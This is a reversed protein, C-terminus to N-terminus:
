VNGLGAAMIISILSLAKKQNITANDTPKIRLKKWKINIFSLVKYIYVKLILIFLDM